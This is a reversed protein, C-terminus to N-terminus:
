ATKDKSAGTAEADLQKLFELKAAIQQELGRSTPQYFDPEALAEPMYREGAAYAHPEDHAYRYASGYGQKKMLSTPANRLHLPVPDSGRQQVWSKMRKFALYAANSKPACALYIATEALALEGEPSGLREYCAAAHEALQMARPDALGVDEWAIRILRRALYLPDVGGDLMRMLWYLAANPHSGRISKHLASIQEYFDDNHKGFQRWSASLQQRVWDSDLHKLGQQLASQLLQEADNLLRRADGDAHAILLAEVEPNVSLDAYEKLALCRQWLASLDQETLRELTFVQCRSLLARNLSFSPHETTAGMLILLGSEVHPLLADQQSTNFRHIEDIFVITEQGFRQAEEAKQFCDRLAKVGDMTASLIHCQANLRQAFLRALTTKGTGPPGFLILSPFRKQQYMLRLPAGEALLQSQGLYDDLHQPRLREALPISM